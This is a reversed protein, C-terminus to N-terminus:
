FCGNFNAQKQRAAVSWCSANISKDLVRKKGERDREEEVFEMDGVLAHSRTPALGTNSCLRHLDIRIERSLVKIPTGVQVCHTPGRAVKTAVHPPSWAGHQLAEM